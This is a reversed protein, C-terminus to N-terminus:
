TSVHVHVRGLFFHLFYKNQWYIISKHGGGGGVSWAITKLLICTQCKAFFCGDDPPLQLSGM